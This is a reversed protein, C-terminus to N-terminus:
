LWEIGKQADPKLEVEREIKCLKYHKVHLQVHRNNDANIIGGKWILWIQHVVVTYVLKQYINLLIDAM